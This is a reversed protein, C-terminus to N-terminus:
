KEVTVKEHQTDLDQDHCWFKHSINCGTGGCNIDITKPM